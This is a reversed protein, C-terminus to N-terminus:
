HSRFMRDVKAREELSMTALSEEAEGVEMLIERSEIEMDVYDNLLEYYLPILENFERMQAETYPPEPCEDAPGNKASSDGGVTAANQWAEYEAQADKLGLIQSKSYAIGEACWELRKESSSRLADLRKRAEIGCETSLM